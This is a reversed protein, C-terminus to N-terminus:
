CNESDVPCGKGTHVPIPLLTIIQMRVNEASLMGKIRIKGEQKLHKGASIIGIPYHYFSGQFFIICYVEYSVFQIAYEKPYFVSM